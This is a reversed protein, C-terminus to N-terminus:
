NLHVRFVDSNSANKKLPYDSCIRSVMDYVNLLVATKTM